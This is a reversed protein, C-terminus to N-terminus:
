TKASNSIKDSSVRVMMFTVTRMPIWLLRFSSTDVFKRRRAKGMLAASLYIFLNNWVIGWKRGFINSWLNTIFGGVMGGLTYVSVITSFIFTAQNNLDEPLLKTTNTATDNSTM